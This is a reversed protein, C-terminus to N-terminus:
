QELTTGFLFLGKEGRFEVLNARFNGFKSVKESELIGLNRAPQLPNKKEPIIYFLKFFKAVTKTLTIPSQRFSSREPSSVKTM